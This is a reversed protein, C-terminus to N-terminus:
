FLAEYMYCDLELSVEKRYVSAVGSPDDAAKSYLASFAANTIVVTLKSKNDASSLQVQDLIQHLAAQYRYAKLTLREADKDEILVTVFLKVDMNLHNAGKERKQFDIRDGIVFVAPTRFGQAKPYIYYDRPVEMTVKNDGRNIRIDTLAAQINAQIQSNVLSVATEVLHRTSM